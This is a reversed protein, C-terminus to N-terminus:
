SGFAVLKSKLQTPPKVTEMVARQVLGSLTAISPDWHINAILKAYTSLGSSQLKELFANFLERMKQHLAKGELAHDPSEEVAECLIQYDNRVAADLDGPQKTSAIFKSLAKQARSPNQVPGEPLVQSQEVEKFAASIAAPTLKIENMGGIGVMAYKYRDISPQLEPILESIPKIGDWDRAVDLLIPSDFDLDSDFQSLLGIFRCLASRKYILSHNSPDYEPVFTLLQWDPHNQRSQMLDDFVPRDMKSKEELKPEDKKSVAEPKGESFPLQKPDKRKAQAGPFAANDRSPLPRNNEQKPDFGRVGKIRSQEWVADAHPDRLINISPLAEGTMARGYDTKIIQRAKARLYSTLDAREPDWNDIAGPIQLGTQQPLEHHGWENIITNQADRWGAGNADFIVETGFQQPLGVLKFAAYAELAGEFGGSEVLVADFLRTPNIAYAEKLLAKLRVNDDPLGSPQEDRRLIYRLVSWSDTFDCDKPDPRLAKIDAFIQAPAVM